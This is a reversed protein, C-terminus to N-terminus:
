RLRAAGDSRDGAPRRRGRIRLIIDRGKQERFDFSNFLVTGVTRHSAWFTTSKESAKLRPIWSALNEEGATMVMLSYGGSEERDALVFALHRAAPLPKWPISIWLLPIPVM